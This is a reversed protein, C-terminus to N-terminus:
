KLSGQKKGNWPLKESLGKPTWYGKFSSFNETFTIELDGSGYRDNWICRAVLLKVARCQSLVGLGQGQMSYSGILSNDNNRLFETEAPILAGDSWIQGPYSGVAKNLWSDTSDDAKAPLGSSSALLLSAALSTFFLKSNQV